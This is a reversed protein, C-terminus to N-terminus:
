KSAAPLNVERDRSEYQQHGEEDPLLGAPERNDSGTGLLSICLKHAHDIHAPYQVVSDKLQRVYDHWSREINTCQVITHQSPTPLSVEMAQRAADLSPLGHELQHARHLRSLNHQLIANEKVNQLLLSRVFQKCDDSLYPNTHHRGEATCDTGHCVSEDKRLHSKEFVKLEAVEPQCKRVTVSFRAQCGRKVSEGHQVKSRRKGAQKEKVEPLNNSHDEPGFNCHYHTQSLVADKRNIDQHDLCFLSLM